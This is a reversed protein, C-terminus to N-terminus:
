GLFKKFFGAISSGSEATDTGITNSYDMLKAKADANLSKPIHCQTIIVLNGRSNGRVKYFGKGPVIIKEGVPCGKPIKIAEKSGDISEIDIQAGLVLQPYTLMVTCVLDDEQRKFKKDETVIIKILLDGAPGGFVGADGRGSVRLEAGNFIGKPISVSFKDYQQKRSQGRCSTCPSPITFGEGGCANCTQSYMFFGQRFQVQGMGNCGGCTEISTGKQMGKGQCSECAFFHQYSLEEKTGLFADKLSIVVEKYLDHGRKPEPGSKRKARRRGGQGGGFIDGFIDGFQDFIDDMHPGHGAGAGGMQEFGAHGLQDYRQRKEADSLVEYAASAEKFKEEADKNNPNRDPHYKLALKRYAAKIEDASASKAVGLIDYYDRKAMKEVRNKLLKSM